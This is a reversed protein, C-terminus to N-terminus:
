RNGHVGRRRGRPERLARLGHVLRAGPLARPSRRASSPRVPRAQSRSTPCRRQSRRAMPWRSAADGRAHHAINHPDVNLSRKVTDRALSVVNGDGDQLEKVVHPMLLDGGNAIAATVLLMQIPTAGLYGQGIGFNYSDGLLWGEGFTEEKWDPDPVLGETEGPLDIGTREGLGFQRAWEALRHRRPGPLRHVEDEIYGGALYYFYVDSSMALGRYFNM